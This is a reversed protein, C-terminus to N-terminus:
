KFPFTRAQSYPDFIMFIQRRGLHITGYRLIGFTSFILAPDFLRAPLSLVSYILPQAIPYKKILNIFMEVYRAIWLRGKLNFLHRVKKRIQNGVIDVMLETLKHFEQNSQLTKTVEVDFSIKQSAFDVATITSNQMEEFNNSDVEIAIQEILNVQDVFFITFHNALILYM